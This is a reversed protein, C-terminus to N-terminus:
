KNLHHNCLINSPFLESIFNINMRLNFHNDGNNTMYIDRSQGVLNQNVQIEVQNVQINKVLFIIVKNILPLDLDKDNKQPIIEKDHIYIM